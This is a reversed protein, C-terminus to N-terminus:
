IQSFACEFLILIKGQEINRMVRKRALYTNDIKLFPIFHAIRWFKTLGTVSNIALYKISFHEETDVRPLSTQQELRWVEWM